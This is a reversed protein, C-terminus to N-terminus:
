TPSPWSMSQHSTKCLHVHRHRPSVGAEVWHAGEHLALVFFLLPARSEMLACMLALTSPAPLLCFCRSANLAESKNLRLTLKKPWSWRTM